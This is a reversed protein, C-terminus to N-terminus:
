VRQGLPLDRFRRGTAAALANTLAPALPPVGPEGVGSPPAASPVIHVEVTPMQPMRLVQYSDFNSQQIRGDEITVEGSLAAALAFGIGGEMQARIVDPNIALGCDVACVVRDVAFSGDDAVTVEVVQAVVSGFSEHVALGRGRRGAAPAALASGWGAQEGVLALAALHRPHDALLRQRYALPDAGAAGALEDIFVEVAHATHTSGVSRWWQVPVATQDNTTHLEVSVNPIKYPVNDAGEVSSPDIGDKIMFSEFATGKAISQGVLRHEWGVPLGDDGLSARLRHFFQPRYWGARMDDERTWVLKVPFDAEAAQVIRACELLYDSLPNGRRGFSGGAYLQHLAVREPALAFAKALAMQDGTHLQEGNWVELRDGHFHMVCNMPEMTAHALFPFSFTAEHVTGAGALVAAADGDRRAPLGPQAALERYSSFLAETSGRWADSEDWELGLADRGLKASWFDRALVAASNDLRVVRHVGPVALAERDDLTTLRAGFRPPHAVLAVQMGPLDVDQTFQARGTTKAESDVRPVATGIYVFDEPEKLTVAEPVPQEAAAAALEGFGAARGSLRHSVTGAAVDIEAAPVDWRTAAAAVLMARATAGARRMQEHCDAMATSGGTAQMGMIRNAYRKADAPAAEVRLQDWAADLEEAVLTAVGTFTGQGMELFKCRIRVTGDTGITVFANAVFDGVADPSAARASRPMPLAVALSLGAGARLISRRSVNRPPTQRKNM